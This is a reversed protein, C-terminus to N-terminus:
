APVSVHSLSLDRYPRPGQQQDARSVPPRLCGALMTELAIGEEPSPSRRRARVNGTDTSIYEYCLGLPRWAPGKNEIVNTTRENFKSNIAVMTMRLVRTSCSVTMAASAPIWDAPDQSGRGVSRIGAGGSERLVLKAPILPAASLTLDLIVGTGLSLSDAQSSFRPTMVTTEVTM